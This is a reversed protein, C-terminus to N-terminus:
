RSSAIMRQPRKGYQAFSALTANLVILALASVMVVLGVYPSAIFRRRQRTGASAGIRRATARSANANSTVALNTRMM